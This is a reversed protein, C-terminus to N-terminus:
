AHAAEIERHEILRPTSEAKKREELARLERIVATRADPFDKLAGIVALQAEAFLPSQLVLLNNNVTVNGVDRLEGTFKGIERLTELLRGSIVAVGNRDGVSAAVDFMRILTSRVISLYDLLSVGEDAARQALQHLAIPGALYNARMEPEVHNAVHRFIADRGVGFKEALADLSAGGIRLMEIRHRELHKCITCTTSLRKKRKM